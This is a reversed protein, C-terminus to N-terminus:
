VQKPLNNRPNQTSGALANIERASNEVFGPTFISKGAELTEAVWQERFNKDNAYNAVLMILEKLSQVHKISDKFEPM